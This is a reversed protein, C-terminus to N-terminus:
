AAALAVVVAALFAILSVAGSVRRRLAARDRVFFANSGKPTRGADVSLLIEIDSMNANSRM